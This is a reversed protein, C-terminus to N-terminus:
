NNDQQNNNQNYNNSFDALPKLLIKHSFFMLEKGFSLFSEDLYFANASLM